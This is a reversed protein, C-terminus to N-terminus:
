LVPSGYKLFLKITQDFISSHAIRKDSSPSKRSERFDNKEFNLDMRTKRRIKIEINQKFKNWEQFKVIVDSRMVQM